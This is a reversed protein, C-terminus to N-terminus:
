SGWPGWVIATDVEESDLLVDPNTLGHLSKLIWDDSKQLDNLFDNM